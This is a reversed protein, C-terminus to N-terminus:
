RKEFLFTCFTTNKQVGRSSGIPVQVADAANEADAAFVAVPRVQWLFLFLVTELLLYETSKKRDLSPMEMKYLQKSTKQQIEGVQCLM